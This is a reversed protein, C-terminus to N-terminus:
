GEEAGADDFQRWLAVLARLVAALHLHAEEHVLALDHDFNAGRARPLRVLESDRLTTYPNHRSTLESKEWKSEEGGANWPVWFAQPQLTSARSHLRTGPHCRPASLRHCVAGACLVGEAASLGAAPM